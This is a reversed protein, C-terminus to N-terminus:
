EALLTRKTILLTKMILYMKKVTHNCSEHDKKLVHMDKGGDNCMGNQFLWVASTISVRLLERTAVARSLIKSRRTKNLPRSQLTIKGLFLVPCYNLNQWNGHCQGKFQMAAM